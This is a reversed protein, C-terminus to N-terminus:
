VLKLLFDVLTKCSMRIELNKPITVVFTRFKFSMKSRSTAPENRSKQLPCQPRMFSPFNQEHLRLPSSDAVRFVVGASAAAHQRVFSIQNNFFIDAVRLMKM